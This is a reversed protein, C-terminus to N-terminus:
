KEIVIKRSGYMRQLSDKIHNTDSPSAPFQFYLKFSSSDPATDMRIDLLYSKLQEYRRMARAKSGTTEIIFKYNAEGAPLPTVPHKAVAHTDSANNLNGTTDERASDGSGTIPKNQDSAQSPSGSNRNYM